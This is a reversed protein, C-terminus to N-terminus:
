ELMFVGEASALWIRGQADEEVSYYTNAASGPGPAPISWGDASFLMAGDTESVAWIAGDSAELVPFLDIAEGTWERKGDLIRLAGHGRTGFWMSGDTAEMVSGFNIDPYIVDMQDDEVRGLGRRGALWYMGRSDRTAAHIVRHPFEPEWPWERTRGDKVSVVGGNAGFWMSGDAAEVASFVIGLPEAGLSDKVLWHSGALRALGGPGTVWLTDDVVMLDSIGRLPSQVEKSDLADSETDQFTLIMGDGTGALIAGDHFELARVEVGETGPVSVWAPQTVCGVTTLIALLLLTRETM